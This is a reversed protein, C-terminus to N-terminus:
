SPIEELSYYIQLGKEKASKVMLDAGQSAGSVRL